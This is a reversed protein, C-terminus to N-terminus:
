SKKVHKIKVTDVYDDPRVSGKVNKCKPCIPPEASSKGVNVYKDCWNCHFEWWEHKKNKM